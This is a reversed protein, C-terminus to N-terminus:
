EFYNGFTQFSRNLKEIIVGADEATRSKQLESVFELHPLLWLHLADHSEGKMTCSAILKKNNEELETALVKYDGTAEKQFAILGQESSSIFPMMQENVKWKEGANLEIGLDHSDTVIEKQSREVNETEASSCAFMSLTLGIIITIKCNKM